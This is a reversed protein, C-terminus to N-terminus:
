GTVGSDKGQGSTIDTQQCGAEVVARDRVEGAPGLPTREQRRRPEPRRPPIPALLMAVAGLVIGARRRAGTHGVSGRM